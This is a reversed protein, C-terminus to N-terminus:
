TLYLSYCIYLWRVRYCMLVLILCTEELFNLYSNIMTVKLLRMLELIFDKMLEVLLLSALDNKMIM